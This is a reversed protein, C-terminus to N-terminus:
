RYKVYYNFHDNLSYFLVSICIIISKVFLVSVHILLAYLWIVILCLFLYGSLHVAHMYAAQSDIFSDFM